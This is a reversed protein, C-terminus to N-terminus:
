RPTRGLDSLQQDLLDVLREHRGPATQGTLGRSPMEVTMLLYLHLRYLTLRRRAAVDLSLPRGDAGTYGRLFPHQPEDELRRFLAPSVFDMLPDGYLCREGDVLGTLRFTGNTDPAALVNGDWGDFHVLRPRDVLDLPGGYRDLLSRIRAPPTPLEVGWVAAEALLDDVMASFVTRWRHGSVRDGDYGYRDGTIRHISALAAGLDQRVAADDVRAEVKALESLSRGPLLTTFMWDGDLTRPDDGHHLVRPVPVRPARESVLRYYRAEAALLGREYRLLRAQAPPSAKLVVSRGDDLTVRWVAAFGGGTMPGCDVVGRHAGFSAAVLTAVDDHDLVRQTPSVGAGAM